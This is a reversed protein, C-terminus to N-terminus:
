IYIYICIDVCIIILLAAGADRGASERGLPLEALSFREM